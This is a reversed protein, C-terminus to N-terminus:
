FTKQSINTSTLRETAEMKMQKSLMGSDYAYEWSEWTELKWLLVAMNIKHLTKLNPYFFHYYLIMM